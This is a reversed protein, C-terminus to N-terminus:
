QARDPTTGQLGDKEQQGRKKEKEIKGKESLMRQFFKVLDDIKKLNLGTRQDEWAPCVLTHSQDFTEKQQCFQCILDEEKKYKNKFNAPIEDVMQTRIRFALRGNEVSRDHFYKQAEAFDDSVLDIIKKSSEIKERVARWHHNNIAKRIDQKPMDVDNLDPLGVKECIESVEKGLGPWGM